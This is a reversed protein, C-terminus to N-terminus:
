KLSVVVDATLIAADSSINTAIIKMWKAPEPVFNIVDASSASAITVPSVPEVYTGAETNCLSYSIQISSVSCTAVHVAVGDTADMYDIPIASTTSVAASALATTSFIRQRAIKTM